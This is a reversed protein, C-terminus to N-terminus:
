QAHMNMHRRVVISLIESNANPYSFLPSYNTSYDNSRIGLQLLTVFVM